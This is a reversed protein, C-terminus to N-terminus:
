LNGLFDYYIVLPFYLFHMAQNQISISNQEKDKNPMYSCLEINNTLLKVAYSEYIIPFILYNRRVM